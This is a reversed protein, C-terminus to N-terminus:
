KNFVFIWSFTWNSIHPPSHSIQVRAGTERDLVKAPHGRLWKPLEGNISQNLIDFHTFYTLCYIFIKEVIKYLYNINNICKYEQTFIIITVLWNILLNNNWTFCKLISINLILAKFPTFYSYTLKFYVVQYFIM